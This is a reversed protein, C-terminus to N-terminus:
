ISKVHHRWGNTHMKAHMRCIGGYCSAPFKQLVNLLTQLREATCDLEGKMLLAWLKTICWALWGPKVKTFGNQVDSLDEATILFTWCFRTEYADAWLHGFMSTQGCSSLDKM